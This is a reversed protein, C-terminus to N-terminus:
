PKLVGEQLLRDIEAEAQLWDDLESGGHFGRREAIYYAAVEVYCRRQEPTLTVAPAKAPAQKAKAAPKEGSAKTVATKAPAKVEKGAEEAKAASKSAAKATTAKTAPKDDKKAKTTKSGAKTATAM